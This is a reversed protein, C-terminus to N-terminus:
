LTLKYTAKGALTYGVILVIFAGQLMRLNIPQIIQIDQPKKMEANDASKGSAENSTNPKDPNAISESSDENHKKKKKNLDKVIMRSQNEYEATTMKDLIGGEFLHILRFIQFDISQNITQQSHGKFLKCMM